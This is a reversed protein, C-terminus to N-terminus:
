TNAKSCRVSASCDRAAVSRRSFSLASRLANFAGSSTRRLLKVAWNAAACVLWISSSAMKCSRVSLTGWSSASRRAFCVVTFASDALRASKDALSSASLASCSFTLVSPLSLGQSALCPSSPKCPSHLRRCMSGPQSFASSAASRSRKPASSTLRRSITRPKAPASAM